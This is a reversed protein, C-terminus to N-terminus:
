WSFSFLIFFLRAKHGRLGCPDIKNLFKRALSLILHLMLILNLLFFFHSHGLIRMCSIYLLTHILAVQWTIYRYQLFFTFTLQAQTYATHILPGQLTSYRLQLIYHLTSSSYHTHLTGYTNFPPLGIILIMDYRIM